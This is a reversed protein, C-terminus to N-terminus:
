IIEIYNSEETIHWIAQGVSRKWTTYENGHTADYCSDDTLHYTLNKVTIYWIKGMLSVRNRINGDLFYINQILGLDKKRLTMLSLPGIGSVNNLKLNERKKMYEIYHDTGVIRNPHRFNSYPYLEVSSITCNDHNFAMLIEQITSKIDYVYYDGDTFTIYEYKELLSVYKKVFINLANAAINKEFQIYKIINNKLKKQELFYNKIEESYKSKNELILYDIDNCYMSEFSKKIDEVNNFCFFILIHKNM